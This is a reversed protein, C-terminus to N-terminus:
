KVDPKSGDSAFLLTIPAKYNLTLKSLWYVTSIPKLRSHEAATLRLWKTIDFVILM